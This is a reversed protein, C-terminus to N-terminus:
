VSKMTAIILRIKWVDAKQLHNMVNKLHPRIKNLYEEISLTKKEMVEMNLIVSAGFIVSKEQEFLNRIDRIIRDKSAENENKLRFPNRIDKVTNDNVPKKLRFLNRVDKSINVDKKEFMLSNMM